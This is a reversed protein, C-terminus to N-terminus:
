SGTHQTAKERKKDVEKQQLPLRITLTTGRGAQSKVEIIGGNQEILRRTIALGLGIGRSKTTFLPEFIKELNEEPIGCGTDEFKAWAYGGNVGTSIRLEGKRSISQISNSIINAFARGVQEADVIIQSSDGNLNDIVAVHEPVVIWSLSEKVLSNLDTSSLSPQRVRTFDLLDTVIRNSIEVQQDVLRLTNLTEEDAKGNDLTLNLLYVCNKIVNLPNRLEHSVKSALKDIVVLRESRILKEQAQKLDM